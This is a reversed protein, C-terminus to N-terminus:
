RVRRDVRTVRASGQHVHGTLDDADVSGDGPDRLLTAGDSQTKGDGDVLSSRDGLLEDFLSAGAVRGDLGRDRAVGRPTGPDHLHGTAPGGVVGAQLGTAPLP